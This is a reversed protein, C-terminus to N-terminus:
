NGVEIRDDPQLQPDPRKGSKISKLNYTTVTLLGDAAQRAIKINSGATTPVGGATLIAQTLTIGHHFPKQGPSRIQGGIYFFQQARALVTIIDSPRVFAKAVAAQDALDITRSGDSMSSMIMARGAEARPQAEALVAHLPVAESRLIKAGANNVLGNVIATHSLYDRVSIMVRPERYSTCHKLQTTLREAIEATTAGGVALPEGILPYDLLGGDIVRHLTAQHPTTNLLRVNLVDGVGVRYVNMLLAASSTAALLNNSEANSSTSALTLPQPPATAADETGADGTVPINGSTDEDVTVGAGADALGKKGKRRAKTTTTTIPTLANTSNRELATPLTVGHAEIRQSQNSREEEQAAASSPPLLLLLSASIPLLVARTLSFKSM